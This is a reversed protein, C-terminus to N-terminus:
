YQLGDGFVLDTGPIDVPLRGSPSVEGAIVRAAAIRSVEMASYVALYADIDPLVSLDYPTGQAVVVVPVGSSQARAVLNQQETDGRAGETGSWLRTLM